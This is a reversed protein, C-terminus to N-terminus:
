RAIPEAPRSGHLGFARVVIPTEASHGISLPPSLARRLALGQGGDLSYNGSTVNRDTRGASIGGHLAFAQEVPVIAHFHVVRMSRASCTLPEPSIMLTIPSYTRSFREPAPGRYM